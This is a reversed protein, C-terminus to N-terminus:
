EEDSPYEITVAANIVSSQSGSFTIGPNKNKIIIKEPMVFPNDNKVGGYITDGSVDYSIGFSSFVSVKANGANAGSVSYNDLIVTHPLYTTYGFYHNNWSGGFIVPASSDTVQITDIIRFEGNWTSGYDERLSIMTSNYIKSNEFLALGGGILRINIVESDLVSANVVGSHADLRNLICHDYTINKCWNTGMVGWIGAPQGVNNKPIEGNEDFYNSTPAGSKPNYFNSQTVNYCYLGNMLSGGIEYTGMGTGNSAIYTRHAQVVCNILKFNNCNRPTFFGSYCSGTDGEDTIKHVVGDITVNSREILINRTYGYLYECPESNACTTFIGGKVTIPRDDVRFVRISTVEAYDLLLPTLPDVNGNEDIIMLEEQASGSGANAGYRIYVKRNKNVPCIMAKFGTSFGFFNLTSNLEEKDIGGAENIKAIIGTPDNEPTIRYSKYDSSITFVSVAASSGAIPDEPDTGHKLNRDDIIFNADGWNVDTMIVIPEAGTETILYTEGRKVSVTHGYQNAYDHTAKIAEYANKAGTTDLSINNAKAFESYYITRVDKTAAIDSGIKVDGKKLRYKGFVEQTLSELLHPFETELKITTGNITTAYGNGQWTNPVYSIIISDATDTVDDTDVIPFWYGVNNYILGQVYKASNISPINATDTIIKFGKADKGGIELSTWVFDTHPEEYLDGSELVASDISDTGSKLGLIDETFDTIVKALSTESGGALIVRNGVRYIAKGDPGLTHGDINCDDGRTTIQGILVECDSVTNARDEVVSVKIGIKDLAKELNRAALRINAAANSDLVIQFKAAGGEILVLGDATGGQGPEVAADCNDCKGDKDADVHETCATDGGGTCAALCFVLVLSLMLILIRKMNKM